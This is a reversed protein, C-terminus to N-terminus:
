RRYMDDFRVPKKQWVWERPLEPALTSRPETARGKAMAFGTFVVAFVLVM